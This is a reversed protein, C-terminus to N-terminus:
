EDLLELTLELLTISELALTSYVYGQVCSSEKTALHPHGECPHTNPHLLLM